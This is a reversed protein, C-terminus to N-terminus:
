PDSPRALVVSDSQTVSRTVTTATNLPCDRVDRVHRGVRHSRRAARIRIAHLCDGPCVWSVLPNFTVRFAAFRRLVLM